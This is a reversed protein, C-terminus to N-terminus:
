EGGEAAAQLTEAGELTLQVPSEEAAGETRLPLEGQERFLPLLAGEVHAADAEIDQIVSDYGLPKLTGKAAKLNKVLLELGKEVIPRHRTFLKFAAGEEAPEVIEARLGQAEGEYSTAENTRGLTVAEKQMADLHKAYLGVGRACSDMDAPSLDLKLRKDPM